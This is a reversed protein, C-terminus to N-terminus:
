TPPQRWVCISLRRLIEAMNKRLENAAAEVEPLLNGFNEM